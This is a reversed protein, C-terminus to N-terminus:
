EIAFGGDETEGRQYQGFAEEALTRVTARVHPKSVIQEWEREEIEELLRKALFNQVNEPLQQAREFAQRLQETM